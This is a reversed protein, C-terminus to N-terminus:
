YRVRYFIVLTHLERLQEEDDEYADKLKPKSELSDSVDSSSTEDPPVDASDTLLTNVYM